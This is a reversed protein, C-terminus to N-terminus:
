LRSRRPKTELVTVNLWKVGFRRAEAHTRFRVDIHYIGKKASQRMAGGTDDVERIGVGPIFLKTRYPLLRPDAAVGDCMAADDGISTKRHRSWSGCCKACPCYATVKMRVIRASNNNMGGNARILANVEKPAVSAPSRNKGRPEVVLAGHTKSAIRVALATLIGLCLWTLAIRTRM